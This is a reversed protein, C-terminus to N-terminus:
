KGAIADQVIQTGVRAGLSFSQFANNVTFAAGALALVVVVAIITKIM